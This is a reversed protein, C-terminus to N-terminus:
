VGEHGGAGRLESSVEEQQGWCRGSSFSATPGQSPGSGKADRSAQPSTSSFPENQRPQTCREVRIGRISKTTRKKVNERDKSSNRAEGRLKQAMYQFVGPSHPNM